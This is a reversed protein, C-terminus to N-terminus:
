LLVLHPPHPQTYIERHMHKQTHIHTDPLALLLFAMFLLMTWALPIRRPRPTAPISESPGPIEPTAAALRPPADESLGAPELSAQFPFPGPGLGVSLTLRRAQEKGVRWGWIQASDFPWEPGERECVSALPATGQPQFAAIGRAGSGFLSADSAVIYKAETKYM